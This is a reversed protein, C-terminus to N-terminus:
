GGAETPPKEKLNAMIEAVVEFMVEVAHRTYHQQTIGDYMREDLRRQMDAIIERKREESM